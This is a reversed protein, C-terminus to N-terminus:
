ATGHEAGGTTPLRRAYRRHRAADPSQAGPLPVINAVRVMRYWQIDDCIEGVAERGDVWRAVEDRFREAALDVLPHQHIERPTGSPWGHARIEEETVFDALAPTKLRSPVPVPIPQDPIAKRRLGAM